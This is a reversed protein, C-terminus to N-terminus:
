GRGVKEKEIFAWSKVVTGEGTCTLKVQKVALLNEGFYCTARSNKGYYCTIDTCYSYGIDIDVDFLLYLALISAM